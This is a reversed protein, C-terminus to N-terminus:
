TEASVASYVRYRRGEGDDVDAFEGHAPRQALVRRLRPLAEDNRTSVEPSRWLKGSKGKPTGACHM